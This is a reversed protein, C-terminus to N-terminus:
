LYIVSLVSYSLDIHTKKYNTGMALPGSAGLAYKPQQRSPTVPYCRYIIVATIKCSKSLIEFKRFFIWWNLFFLGAKFHLVIGRWGPLFLDARSVLRYMFM